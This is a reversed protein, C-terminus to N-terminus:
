APTQGRPLGHHFDPTAGLAALRGARGGWPASVAGHPGRGHPAVVSLTILSRKLSSRLATLGPGGVRTEWRTPTPAPICRQGFAAPTEGSAAPTALAFGILFLVPRM